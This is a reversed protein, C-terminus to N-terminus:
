QCIISMIKLKPWDNIAKGLPRELDPIECEFKAKELMRRGVKINEERDCGLMIQGELASLSKWLYGHTSADEYATRLIAIAKEPKRLKAQRKGDLTLFSIRIGLLQSGDLDPAYKKWEAEMNRENGQELATRLLELKAGQAIVTFGRMASEELVGELMTRSEKVKGQRLLVKALSLRSLWEIFKETKVKLNERMLAEAEDQNGMMSLIESWLYRKFCGGWGAALANSDFAGISEAIRICTTLEGM